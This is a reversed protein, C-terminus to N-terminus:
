EKLKRVLETVNDDVKTGYQKIFDKRAERDLVACYHICSVITLADTQKLQRLMRVIHM